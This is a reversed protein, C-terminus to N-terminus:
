WGNLPDDGPVVVFTTRHNNALIPLLCRRYRRAVGREQEHPCRRSHRNVIIVFAFPAGAIRSQGDLSPGYETDDVHQRPACTRHVPRVTDIVPDHEVALYLEFEIAAGLPRDALAADDDLPARVMQPAVDGIPGAPNGEDEDLCGRIKVFAVRQRFVFRLIIVSRRRSACEGKRAGRECPRRSHRGTRVRAM